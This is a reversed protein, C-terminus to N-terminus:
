ELRRKLIGALFLVYKEFYQPTRKKNLQTYKKWLLASVNSPPVPHAGRLVGKKLGSKLQPSGSKWARKWRWLCPGIHLLDCVPPGLSDNIKAGQLLTLSYSGLGGGGWRWNPVGSTKTGPAGGPPARSRSSHRGIWWTSKDKEKKKGQKEKKGREKREETKPVGTPVIMIYSIEWLYIM